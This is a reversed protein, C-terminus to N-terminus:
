WARKKAPAAAPTSKLQPGFLETYMEEILDIGLQQHRRPAIEGLAIEAAEDADIDLLQAAARGINEADLRAHVYTRPDYDALLRRACSLRELLEGLRGADQIAMLKNVIEYKKNFQM